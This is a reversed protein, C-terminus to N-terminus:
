YFALAASLFFLDDLYGFIPIHDPIFDFPNILYFLAGYAVLKEVPRLKKSRVISLLKTIRFSWDKGFKKFGKIKETSSDVLNRKNKDEAIQSLTDVSGASNKKFNELMGPSIGLGNAATEFPLWEQVLLNQINKAEMSLVGEAVLKHVIRVVADKYVDPLKEDAPMRRWRRLTMGSVGLQEGFHEPSLKSAKVITLLQGYTMLM